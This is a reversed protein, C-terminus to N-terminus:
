YDCFWVPGVRVCSDPRPGRRNWQRCNRRECNPGRHRHWVGNRGRACSRHCGNVQTLGDALGLGSQGVNAPAAGAITASAALLGAAALLKLSRIM